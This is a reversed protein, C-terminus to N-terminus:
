SGGRALPRPREAIVILSLGFFLGLAAGSYLWIWALPGAETSKSFGVTNMAQVAIALVAAVGVQRWLGFRSFSGILIAGFGILGGSLGLFPQSNRFHFERFFAQATSGAGQVIAPDARLLTASSLQDLSRGTNTDEAIM